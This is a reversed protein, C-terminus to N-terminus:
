QLVDEGDNKESGSSPGCLVAWSGQRWLVLNQDVAAYGAGGMPLLVARYMQPIAIRSEISQALLSECFDSAHITFILM